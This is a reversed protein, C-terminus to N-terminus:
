VVPEILSVLMQPLGGGVLRLHLFVTSSIGPSKELFGPKRLEPFHSGLGLLVLHLRLWWGM